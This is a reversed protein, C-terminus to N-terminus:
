YSLLWNRLDGVTFSSVPKFAQADHTDLILRTVEDQEYPIVPDDLLTQLPVDALCLCAAVREEASCAAIGALEDGSKQPSARALLTKIGDFTYTKHGLTQKYLTM